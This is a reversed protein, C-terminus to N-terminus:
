AVLAESSDSNNFYNSRKVYWYLLMTSPIILLLLWAYERSKQIPSCNGNIVFGAWFFPHSKSPNQKLFQRKANALAEDKTEGKQLNKYFLIMIEATEKDPVEWLSYVASQVGGYALARSLSMLGEGKNFAGIGTNCASLVVMQATFHLQYLQYFYLRDQNSFVLNSKEYDGNNMEAHMALHYIGFKGLSHAFNQKTAKEAKYLVGKCLAAITGTEQQAFKLNQWNRNYTPAFAVVTNKNVFVSHQLKWLQLSYTYSIQFQNLLLQENQPNIFTEFPLFNLFSAPAIILKNYASSLGLPKILIHYLVKAHKQWNSQTSKLEISYKEVQEQVRQVPGITCIRTTTADILFAYVHTDTIIYQVFLDQRGIKKQITEINFNDDNLTTYAADKKHILINISDIKKSLIKQQTSNPALEDVDILLRNRENLLASPVKIHSSYRALFLKWLHQSNNNEILEAVLKSSITAGAEKVEMLATTIEAHLDSLSKNYAGKKYYKGFMQAAEKYLHAAIELDEKVKQHNYLGTFLYGAHLLIRIQNENINKGFAAVTVTKFDIATAKKQLIYALIKKLSDVCDRKHTTKEILEAELVKLTHFSISNEPFVFEKFSKQLYKFANSYDKRDYALLSRNAWSKMKYFPQVSYKDAFLYAKKADEYNKEKRFIWGATEFASALYPYADQQFKTERSMVISEFNQLAKWLKEPDRKTAFYRCRSLQWYDITAHKDNTAFKCWAKYLPPKSLSAIYSDYEQLIKFAAVDDGYDNYASILNGLITCYNNISTSIENKWINHAKLLYTLYMEQMGLKDYLMALNNYNLALTDRNQQDSKEYYNLWEEQFKLAALRKENLNYQASLILIFAYYHQLNAKHIAKSRYVKEAVVLAEKNSELNELYEIKQIQLELWANAETTLLNEPFLQLANEIPKLSTKNRNYEELATRAITPLQTSDKQTFAQVAFFNIIIFLILQKKRKKSITTHLM